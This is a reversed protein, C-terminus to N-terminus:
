AYLDLGTAAPDTTPNAVPTATATRNEAPTSGATDAGPRSSGDKHSAGLGDQFQSGPQSLNLEAQLGTSALDRRLENLVGRLAERAAENAGMLDISVGTPGFVAKVRVPGFSEPDVRLIMTHEGSGTSRLRGLHNELQEALQPALNPPAAPAATAKVANPHPTANANNVAPNAMAEVPQAATVNKIGDVKVETKAAPNAEAPAVALGALAAAPKAAEAAQAPVVPKAADAPADASATAGDTAADGAQSMADAFDQAPAQPAVQNTADAQETALGAMASTVPAAGAGQGAADVPLAPTAEVDAAVVPLVVTMEAPVDTCVTTDAAEAVVQEAVDKAADANAPETNDTAEASDKQGQKVARESREPREPREPRDKRESREPREPRDKREPREPRDARENAQNGAGHNRRLREALRGTNDAVFRANREVQAASHGPALAQEPKAMNNLVQDFGNGEAATNFGLGVISQLSRQNNTVLLTM